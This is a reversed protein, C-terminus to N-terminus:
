KFLRIITYGLLCANIFSVFFVLKRLNALITLSQLDQDKKNLPALGKIQKVQGMSKSYNMTDILIYSLSMAVSIFLISIVQLLIYNSRSIKAFNSLTVLGIALSTFLGINRLNTHYVILLTKLEM